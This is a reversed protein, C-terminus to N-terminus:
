IDLKVQGVVIFESSDQIYGEDLYSKPASIKIHPWVQEGERSSPDIVKAKDTWVWYTKAQVIM